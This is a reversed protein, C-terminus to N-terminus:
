LCNLLLKFAFHDTAFGRIDANHYLKAVFISGKTVQPVFKVSVRRARNFHGVRHEQLLYWTVGADLSFQLLVGGEGPSTVNVHCAPRPPKM